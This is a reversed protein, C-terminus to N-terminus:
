LRSVFSSHITRWASMLILGFGIELPILQESGTSGVTRREIVAIILALLLRLNITNIFTQFALLGAAKPGGRDDHAGYHGDVASHLFAGTYLGASIWLVSLLCGESFATWLYDFQM